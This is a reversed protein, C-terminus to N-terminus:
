FIQKRARNDIHRLISKILWFREYNTKAKWGNRTSM